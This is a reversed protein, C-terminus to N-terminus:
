YYQGVPRAKNSQINSISGQVKAM